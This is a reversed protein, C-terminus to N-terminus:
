SSQGKVQQITKEAAVAADRFHTAQWHYVSAPPKGSHGDQEAYGELCDAQKKVAEVFGELAALIPAISRQRHAAIQQIPQLGDYSGALWRERDDQTYCAPRFKWACERDERTVNWLGSM